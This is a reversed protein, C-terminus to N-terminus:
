IGYQYWEAADEHVSPPRMKRFRRLRLYYCLRMWSYFLRKM